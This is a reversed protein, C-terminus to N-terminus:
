GETAFLFSARATVTGNSVVFGPTTDAVLGTPGGPVSVVLPIAGPFPTGAGNYLTSVETDADAVWWPSGATRALGWANVLNADTVDGARPVDSVLVHVDYASHPSKAGVPVVALLLLAVAALRALMRRM